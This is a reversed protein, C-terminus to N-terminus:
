YIYDKHVFQRYALINFIVIHLILISAIGLLLANNGVFVLPLADRQLYPILIFMIFAKIYPVSKFYESFSIFLSESLLSLLIYLMSIGIAFTINKSYMAIFAFLSVISILSLFAWCYYVLVKGLLFLFSFHLASKEKVVFQGILYSSFAFLLLMIFIFLYTTLLKSFFIQRRTYHRIFILRLQGGRYEETFISAVLAAVLINVPFYINSSLGYIIYLDLVNHIPMNIVTDAVIYPLCPIAVILLWVWKKTLIREWEARILTIM